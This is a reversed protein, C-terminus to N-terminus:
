PRAGAIQEAQGAFIARGPSTAVARVVRGGIALRVSFWGGLLAPGMARAELHAEAIPTHEEVILRDGAHILPAPAEGQAPNEAVAPSQPSPSPGKDDAAVRLLLGPGGPHSDDRVLLWRDGSHPDDIERLIDQRAIELAAIRSTARAAPSASSTLISAPGSAQPPAAALPEIGAALMLGASIWRYIARLKM